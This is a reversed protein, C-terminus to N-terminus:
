DEPLGPVLSRFGCNQNALVEFTVTRETPNIGLVHLKGYHPVGLVTCVIRGRIVYRQGVAIHVTDFTVYGNLPAERIDAFQDDTPLLGPPATSSTLGIVALPLFVPSGSNDINFVFDFGASQDTRVAAADAVSYGSPSNLPTGVLASLVVTDVANAIAADGFPSGGCGGAVGASLALVGVVVFRRM